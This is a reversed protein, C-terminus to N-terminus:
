ACFEIAVIVSVFIGRTFKCNWSNELIASNLFNESNELNELTTLVRNDTRFKKGLEM